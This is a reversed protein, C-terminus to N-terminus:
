IRLSARESSAARDTRRGRRFGGSVSSIPVRRRVPGLRPGSRRDLGERRGCSGCGVGRRVAAFPLRAVAVSSHTWGRVWKATASFSCLRTRSFRSCPKTTSHLIPSEFEKGTSAEFCPTKSTPADLVLAVPAFVPATSSCSSTTTRKHPPNLSDARCATKSSTSSALRNGTVVRVSKSSSSSAVDDHHVREVSM